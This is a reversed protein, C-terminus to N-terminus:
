DEIIIYDARLSEETRVRELRITDRRVANSVVFSGKEGFGFLVMLTRNDFRASGESHRLITAGTSDLERDFLEVSRVAGSNSVILVPVREGQLRASTDRELREQQHTLIRSLRTLLEQGLVENTPKVRAFSSDEWDRIM